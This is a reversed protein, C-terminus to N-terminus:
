SENLDEEDRDPWDARDWMCEVLEGKTGKYMEHYNPIPEVVGPTFIKTERNYGPQWMECNNFCTCGKLVKKSNYYNSKLKATYCNCIFPKLDEKNVWSKKDLINGIKMVGSCLRCASRLLEGQQNIRVNNEGANCYFGSYDLIGEKTNNLLSINSSYYNVDGNYHHTIFYPKLHRRTRRKYQYDRLQDVYEQNEPTLTCGRNEGDRTLTIELGLDNDMVFQFYPKYEEINDNDLVAKLQGKVALLKHCFDWRQKDTKLMELHFSAAIGLQIQRKICYDKLEVWYDLDRYFNTALSIYKVREVKELLAVLNFISPEGGILHLRVLANPDAHSNVYDDLNSAIQEVYEQTPNDEKAKAAEVAKSMYCYSCKYPCWDTMKWSVKFINKDGLEVYYIDKLSFKTSNEM